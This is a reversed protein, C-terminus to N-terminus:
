HLPFTIIFVGFPRLQFAPDSQVKGKEMWGVQAWCEPTIESAVEELFSEPNGKRGKSVTCCEM